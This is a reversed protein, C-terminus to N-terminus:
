YTAWVPPFLKGAAEPTIDVGALKAAAALVPDRGAALDSATPLLLVDPTVGVGDLDAGDPFRLRAITINMAYHYGNMTLPFMKGRGVAGATRDGIVTGRKEIQVTRAVVESASASASDVLVVLKGSFGNQGRTSVKFEKIGHREVFNGVVQDHQILNAIVWEMQNEGGGRNERLDVILTKYKQAAEFTHDTEDRSQYFV